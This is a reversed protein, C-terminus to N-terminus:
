AQGGESEYQDIQAVVKEIMRDLTKKTIALDEDSIEGLAAEVIKGKGDMLKTNLAKGLETLYIGKRRADLREKRVLGRRELESIYRITNQYDAQYTKSLDRQTAGEYRYVKGLMSQLSNPMNYEPDIHHSLMKLKASIRASRDTIDYFKKHAEYDM